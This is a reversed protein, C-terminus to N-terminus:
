QAETDQRKTALLLFGEPFNGLNFKWHGEQKVTIDYNHILRPFANYIEAKALAFGLCMRPGHAWPLFAAKMETTAIGWRSPRFIRADSGWVSPDFNPLNQPMVVISGKPIILSSRSKTDSNSISNTSNIM